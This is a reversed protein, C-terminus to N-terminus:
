ASMSGFDVDRDGIDPFELDCKSWPRKYRSGTGKGGNRARNTVDPIPWPARQLNADTSNHTDAIEFKM